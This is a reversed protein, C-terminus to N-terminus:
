SARRAFRADGQELDHDLNIRVSSPIRQRLNISSEACVTRRGSSPQRPPPTSPCSRSRSLAAPAGSENPRKEKKRLKFTRMQLCTPMSLLGAELEGVHPMLRRSKRAFIDCIPPSGVTVAITQRVAILRTRVVISHLKFWVVCEVERYSGGPSTREQDTATTASTRFWGELADCTMPKLSGLNM